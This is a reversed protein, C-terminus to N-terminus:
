IEKMISLATLKVSKVPSSILSSVPADYIDLLCRILGKEILDNDDLALTADDLSIGSLYIFRSCAIFQQPRIISSDKLYNIVVNINFFGMKELFGDDFLSQYVEIELDLTIVSIICNDSLSPFLDRLFQISEYRTIDPREQLSSRLIYFGNSRIIDQWACGRQEILCIIEKLKSTFNEKCTSSLASTILLSIFLMYDSRSFSKTCQEFQAIYDESNRLLVTKVYDYAKKQIQNTKNM